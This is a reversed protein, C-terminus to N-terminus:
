KVLEMAMAVAGLSGSSSGLGPSVIYQDIHKIIAESQIYGNLLQVVKQQISPLLGPHQAVGGGLVIRLPSYMLIHNAIAQAIYDGELEWGPHDDPLTDAPQGWRKAMAPGSALGEWCDRHYPCCGEFPDKLMDHPLRMHGAEAHVLGHLPKGNILVGTGIGTGVTIYLFPDCDRNEPIWTHEGIAAANVDTDFAMPVNLIRQVEGLLDTFRWGPKPTSTIYGYTKSTSDLDVPGFAGIGVAVLDGLYAKFFSNVRQITEKPTTTSFKIEGVIDLTSEAAICVFKTGGAEIGGFLKGM